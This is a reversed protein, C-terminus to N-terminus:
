IYLDVLIQSTRGTSDYGTNSKRFCKIEKHKHLIVFLTTPQPHELYENGLKLAPDMVNRPHSM